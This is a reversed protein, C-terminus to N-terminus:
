PLRQVRALDNVWTHSPYPSWLGTRLVRQHFRSMSFITDDRRVPIRSWLVERRYDFLQQRVPKRYRNSDPYGMVLIPRGVTRGTWGDRDWHPLVRSVTYTWWRRRFPPGFGERRRGPLHRSYSTAM